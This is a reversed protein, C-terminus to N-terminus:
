IERALLIIPGSAKQIAGDLGISDLDNSVFDRGLFRERSHEATLLEVNGLHGDGVIESQFARSLGWEGRYRDKRHPHEEM